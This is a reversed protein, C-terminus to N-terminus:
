IETVSNLTMGASEAEPLTNTYGNNPVGHTLVKSNANTLTRRLRDVRNAGAGLGVSSTKTLTRRVTDVLIDGLLEVILGFEPRNEPRESWCARMIDFVAEPCSLPRELRKGRQINAVVEHVDAKGYPLEGLTAMEWMVVGYSWVDSMTTFEKTEISEPAMWRLPLAAINNAEDKSDRKKIDEELLSESNSVLATSTQDSELSRNMESNLGRSLSRLEALSNIDLGVARKKPQSTMAWELANGKGESGTAGGSGESRTGVLAALPRPAPSPVEGVEKMSEAPLADSNSIIVRTYDTGGNQESQTMAAEVDVGSSQHHKPGLNDKSLARRMERGGVAQSKDKSQTSASCERRMNSPPQNAREKESAPSPILNSYGSRPMPNAQPPGRGSSLSSRPVEVGGTTVNLYKHRNNASALSPGLSGHPSAVVAVYDSVVSSTSENRSLANRASVDSRLSSRSGIPQRMKGHVMQAPLPSQDAGTAPQSYAVNGSHLASQSSTRSRVANSQYPPRSGTSTMSPTKSVLHRESGNDSDHYSNILDLSKMSGIDSDVEVAGFVNDRKGGKKSSMTSSLQKRAPEVSESYVNAVSIRRVQADEAAFAKELVLSMGFDGVKLIPVGHSDETPPALLCNRAALDRHVVNKSGLYLMGHALQHALALLAAIPLKENRSKRESLYDHLSGLPLFEMVVCPMYGEVRKTIGLIYIVHPHDLRRMLDVERMLSEEADGDAERLEKIAVPVIAGNYKLSGRYVHGFTGSGVIQDKNLHKIPIDKTYTARVNRLVSVPAETEFIECDISESSKKGTWRDIDQQKRREFFCWIGLGVILLAAVVGTVAGVISTMSVSTDDVFQQGDAGVTQYPIVVSDGVVTATGLKVNNEVKAGNKIVTDPGVAVDSGLTVSEGITSRAGVFSNIDITSGRGITLEEEINVNDAIIVKTDVKSLPGLAVGEGITTFSGLSCNSGVVTNAGVDVYQALVTSPGIISNEGITAYRSVSAGAAVTSATQLNVNNGIITLARREDGVARRYHYNPEGSVDIGIRVYNDAKTNRYLIVNSAIEVYDGLEVDQEITVDDGITVGTGIKATKAITVNIGKVLQLPSPTTSPAQTPHSSASPAASPTKTPISTPIAIPSPLPTSSPSPSLDPVDLLGGIEIICTYGKYGEPCICTFGQADDVCTGRRCPETACESLVQRRSVSSGHSKDYLPTDQRYQREGDYELQQRQQTDSISLSLSAHVSVFLALLRHVLM